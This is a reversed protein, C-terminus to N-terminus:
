AGETVLLPLNKAIQEPAMYVFTGLVESAMMSSSHQWRSIGFDCLYLHAIRRTTRVSRVLFNGPKVDEHVILPSRTHLYWLSEAAQLIIDSTQQLSWHEWPPATATLDALSGESIYPSVLFPRPRNEYIFEGYDIIPLIYPHQLSRAIEIERWFREYSKHNRRDDENIVKMIKLVVRKQTYTDLALWLESMGGSKMRQQSQYRENAM